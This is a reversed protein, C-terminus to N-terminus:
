TVTTIAAIWGLDFIQAIFLLMLRKTIGINLERCLPSYLAIM